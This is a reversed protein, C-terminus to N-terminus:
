WGQSFRTKELRWIPIAGDSRFGEGLNGGVGDHRCVFSSAEISEILPLCRCSHCSWLRTSANM